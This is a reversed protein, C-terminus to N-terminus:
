HNIVFITQTYTGSYIRIHWTGQETATLNTVNSSQLYSNSENSWVALFFDIWVRLAEAGLYLTVLLVWLWVGMAKAYRCFLRVQIRGRRRDETTHLTSGARSGAQKSNTSISPTQQSAQQRDTPKSSKADTGSSQPKTTASGSRFDNYQHAELMRALRSSDSSMLQQYTGVEQVWGSRRHRKTEVKLAQTTTATDAASIKQENDASFSGMLVIRDAHKAYKIQNMVVLRVKNGLMGMLVDHFLREGVHVDVAALADDILYIDADAYVARALCVRMKQGGSLNIGREGIMTLDGAPMQLLDELLCCAKLTADYLTRDFKKGFLINTRLSGDIIFPVQQVYAVSGVCELGGRVRPMEGLIAELLSSKYSGTSGFILVLPADGSDVSLTVNELLADKSELAHSNKVDPEAEAPVELDSQVETTSPLWSFSANAVNIRARSAAGAASETNAETRHTRNIEPLELFEQIRRVSVWGDM